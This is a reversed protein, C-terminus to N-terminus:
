RVRRREMVVAALNRSWVRGSATMSATRPLAHYHLQHNGRYCIVRVRVLEAPEPLPEPEPDPALPEAPLPEPEPLPFDPPDDKEESTDPPSLM